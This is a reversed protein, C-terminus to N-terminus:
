YGLDQGSAAADDRVPEGDPGLVFWVDNVGQGNVDGPAADNAFYYLPWGGYTAQTAGSPHTATSLLAADAGDGATAPGEFVPWAEACDDTCTPEGGEDPVFMYLTRGEGDVVIDGLDSSAVAVTAAMEEEAAEEDSEADDGADAQEDTDDSQEDADDDTATDDPTTADNDEAATDDVPDTTGDGSGCGTLALAVTAVVGVLLRRGSIHM